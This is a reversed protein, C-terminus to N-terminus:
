TQLVPSGRHFFPRSKLTRHFLRDTRPFDLDKCSRNSSSQPAALLRHKRQLAAGLRVALFVTWHRTALDQSMTHTAQLWEMRQMRM